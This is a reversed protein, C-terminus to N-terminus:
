LKDLRAHGALCEELFNTSLAAAKRKRAISLKTPNNKLIGLAIKRMLSFNLAANRDEIRSADEDSAPQLIM